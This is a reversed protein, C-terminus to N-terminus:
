PEPEMSPLTRSIIRIMAFQRFKTSLLHSFIVMSRSLVIWSVDPNEYTTEAQENVVESGDSGHYASGAKHSLFVISSIITLLKM